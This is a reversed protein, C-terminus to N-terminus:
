LSAAQVDPGLPFQERPARFYHRDIIGLLGTWMCPGQFHTFIEGPSCKCTMFIDSLTVKFFIWFPVATQFFSLMARFSFRGEWQRSLRDIWMKGKKKKKGGCNFHDRVANHRWPQSSLYLPSISGTKHRLNWKHETCSPYASRLSLSLLSSLSFCHCFRGGLMSQKRAFSFRNHRGSWGSALATPNWIVATFKACSSWAQNDRIQTKARGKKMAARQAEKWKTQRVKKRQKEDPQEQENKRQVNMDKNEAKRM